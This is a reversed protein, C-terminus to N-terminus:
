LMELQLEPHKLAYARICANIVGQAHDQSRFGQCHMRYHELKYEPNFVVFKDHDKDKITAWDNAIVVDCGTSEIQSKAADILERQEVGVLMKFGCIIADLNLNRARKILKPLPKLKITMADSSRIKGDFYNEVGYDSVASSLIVIDSEPVFKDLLAAYEDFTTYQYIHEIAQASYIAPKYKHITYENFVGVVKNFRNDVCLEKYIEVGFRGKSQNTISRIADIPVSMGGGTILVRM